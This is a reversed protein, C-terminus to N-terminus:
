PRQEGPAGCSRIVNASGCRPVVIRRKLDDDDLKILLMGALILLVAFVLHSRGKLLGNKWNM